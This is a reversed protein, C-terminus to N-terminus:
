QDSRIMNVIVAALLAIALPLWKHDELAKWLRAGARRLISRYTPIPKM